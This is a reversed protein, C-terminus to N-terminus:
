TGGVVVVSAGVVVSDGSGSVVLEYTGGVVDDVVEDVDVGEGSGDGSGDCSGSVVSTGSVVNEAVTTGVDV